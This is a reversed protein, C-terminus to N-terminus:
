NLLHAFHGGNQQICKDISRLFHFQVRGLTEPNNINNSANLIRQWLEERTNVPTKYIETKLAGWLFFDCMNLDPSRPPWQVPADDGRGIWRNPYQEHLYERVDVSFHPPAGDHMYWLGQRTSIPLDELLLPLTNQLFNLHINGNLRHPLVVPGILYRDIIGAWVNIKFQHQHHNVKIAHPNEDAYVHENHLNVVGSRTFSAEDTFSIKEGFNLYHIRSNRIFQCFLLRQTPDIPLLEQVPQVHYPHLLQEQLIDNVITKPVALEREVQRTSISPEEEVRAM